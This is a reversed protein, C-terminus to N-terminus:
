SVCGILRFFKFCASSPPWLSHQNGFYPICSNLLDSSKNTLPLIASASLNLYSIIVDQFGFCIPLICVALTFVRALFPFPLQINASKHKPAVITPLVLSLANGNDLNFSVSNKQGSFKTKGVTLFLFFFTSVVKSSLRCLSM